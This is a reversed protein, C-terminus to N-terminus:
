EIGAASEPKRVHSYVTSLGHEEYWDLMKHLATRFPTKAKWGFAKETESPDLVVEPVDDPGPPVEPPEKEPEVDLYAAVEDHIERMRVGTGPSVHFIGTPADPSMVRDMLDFFDSVDVFDRVTASCFCPKGAKLRQYFIPIAGIVFRPALVTALRLSVVDLGSMMLYEEGATKSIAYSALPRTPHDLPIPLKQPPGYCLATQLNVFRLVGAALAAQAIVISGRVNTDCDELWNDPDKYSAAAHIVHTPEFDAFTRDVLDKDAISGEVVTLRPQNALVERQGTSFNEIVCIDHGDIFLREVMNSGLCGAGGTVLVRM